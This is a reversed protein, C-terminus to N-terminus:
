FIKPPAPKDGRPTVEGAPGTFKPPKAGADDAAAESAIEEKTRYLGDDKEKAARMFDDFGYFAGDKWSLGSEEAMADSALQRRAYPSKVGYEDLRANIWDRQDRQLIQRRFNKEAEEAQSRYTRIEARLGDLDVGEFKRLAETSSDLRAKYDDREATVDALTKEAKARANEIDRGNLAFIKDAAEGTVGLAELDERKM